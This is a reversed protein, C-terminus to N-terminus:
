VNGYQTRSTMVIEQFKNLIGLRREVTDGEAEPAITVLDSLKTLYGELIGLKVKISESIAECDLYRKRPPNGAGLGAQVKAILQAIKTELQTNQGRFATTTNKWYM